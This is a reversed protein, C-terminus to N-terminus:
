DEYLERRVNLFNMLCSELNGVNFVFEQRFPTGDAYRAPLWPPMKRLVNALLEDISKDGSSHEVHIDEVEGTDTIAFKVSALVDPDWESASLFDIAHEQLYSVLAESGDRYEAPKEPNIIFDFDMTKPENHQLSNNPLYKILISIKSGPDVRHMLDKQEFTLENNEGEAYRDNDYVTGRVSVSYYEKVWSPKFHPNLDQIFEAKELMTKSISLPAFMQKVEFRLNSNSHKDQAFAISSGAALVVVIMIQIYKRM